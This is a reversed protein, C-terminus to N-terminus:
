FSFVQWLSRGESRRDQSVDRGDTSTGLEYAPAGPLKSRVVIRRTQGRVRLEEVRVSEDESVTRVVVPENGRQPLEQPASAARDAAPPM